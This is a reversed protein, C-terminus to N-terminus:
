FENSEEEALIWKWNQWSEIINMAKLTKAALMLSKSPPRFDGKVNRQGRAYCYFRSDNIEKIKHRRSM